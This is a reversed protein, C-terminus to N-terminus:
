SPPVTPSAPPATPTSTFGAASPSAIAAAGHDLDPPLPHSGLGLKMLSKAEPLGTPPFGNITQYRLMAGRTRADWEGNPDGQLYGERILAQQIEQVREPQIRVFAMRQSYSLVRPRRSVFKGRSSSSHRQSSYSRGANSKGTSRSVGHAGTKGTTAHAATPHTAASHHTTTPTAPRRTVPRRVTTRTARAPAHTAPKGSANTSGGGKASLGSFVLCAVAWLALVTTRPKRGTFSM